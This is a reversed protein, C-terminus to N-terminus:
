GSIFHIVDVWFKSYQFCYHLCIAASLYNFYTFDDTIIMATNSVGATSQGDASFMRRASFQYSDPTKAESLERLKRMEEEFNFTLPPSAIVDGALSCDLCQM